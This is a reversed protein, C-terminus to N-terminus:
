RTGSEEILDHLRHTVDRSERQPEGGETQGPPREVEAAAYARPPMTVPSASRTLSAVQHREGGDDREDSNM